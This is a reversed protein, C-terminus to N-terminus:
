DSAMPLEIAVISLSWSKIEMQDGTDTTPLLRSLFQVFDTKFQISNKLKNSQMRNLYDVQRVYSTAEVMIELAFLASTTRTSPRTPLVHGGFILRNELSFANRFRRSKVSLL